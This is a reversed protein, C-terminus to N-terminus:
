IPHKNGKSDYWYSTSIYSDHIINETTEPNDICNATGDDLKVKNLEYLLEYKTYWDESELFNKVKRIAAFAENANNVFERIDDIRDDTCIKGDFLFNGDNDITIQM